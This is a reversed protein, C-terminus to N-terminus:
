WSLGAADAPPDEPKKPEWVLGAEGVWERLNESAQNVMDSLIEAAAEFGFREVLKGVIFKVVVGLVVDRHKDPLGWLYELIEKQLKSEEPTLARM